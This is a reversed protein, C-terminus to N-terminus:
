RKFQNPKRNKPVLVKTKGVGIDIQDTKGVYKDGDICIDPSNPLYFSANDSSFKIYKNSFKLKNRLSAIISDIVEVNSDASLISIEFLGDDVYCDRIFNNFGGIRKQNSIIIIAANGFIMHKDTKCVYPIQNVKNFILDKAGTLLYGLYGTGRKLVSPVDYPINLLKGCGATYVFPTGNITPIDLEKEEGCLIDELHREIKSGKLGIITKIDNTTGHPLHSILVNRNITNKVLNNFTGDGGISIIIDGNNYRYNDFLQSFVTNKDKSKIIYADYGCKNSAICIDEEEVWSLTNFGTANYLFVIKKKNSM